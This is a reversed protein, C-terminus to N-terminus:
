CVSSNVRKLELDHSYELQDRKLKRENEYNVFTGEQVGYRPQIQVTGGEASEVAGVSGVPPMVPRIGISPAPILRIRYSEEKYAERYIRQAPFLLDQRLNGDSGKATDPLHSTNKPISPDMWDYRGDNPWNNKELVRRFLGRLYQYDPKQDFNLNRCYNMYELLERPQGECLSAFSNEIKCEMIRNYKKKKTTANLGQWPLKGRVFYLLVFGLSELDDRRSQEIGLHNSLSAYRPTGTLTKNERYPIHRYYYPNRYQKSLGFDIIYVVNAREGTGIVFNDPKIDRHIFNRHHIFELRTILEIGLMMTTKLSFRRGCYNFMDELSPGLLEMVMVNNDGVVGKMFVKPIGMGGELISYVKAEFLLQPCKTKSSEKKIAILKGTHLDSGIFIEGFAGHGIKRTIKYDKQFQKASLINAM